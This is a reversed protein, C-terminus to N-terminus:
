KDTLKQDNLNLPQWHNPDVIAGEAASGADRSDIGTLLESFECRSCHRSRDGADDRQVYITDVAKCSPCTAGAIFRRQRVPPM